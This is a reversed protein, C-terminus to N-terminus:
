SIMVLVPNLNRSIIGLILIENGLIFCHLYTKSIVFQNVRPNL